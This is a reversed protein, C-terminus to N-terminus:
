FDQARGVSSVPNTFVLNVTEKRKSGGYVGTLFKNYIFQITISKQTTLYHLILDNGTYIKVQIFRAYM